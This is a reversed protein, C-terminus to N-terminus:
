LGGDTLSLLGLKDEAHPDVGADYLVLCPDFDDLLAPLLAALRALYEGDGVGDALGVDMDSMSKRLPFNREAHMSMTFVNPNGQFIAATGDGQHVDLDLILVRKAQKTETAYVAAVALDNFICFGSGFTCHAHHTGGGLHCVLGHGLGPRRRADLAMAASTVTGAVELVTRAVLARSWPFGIRRLAQPSMAGSVFDAVHGPAHTLCLAAAVMEAAVMEAGPGGAGAGGGELAAKLAKGPPPAAACAAVAALLLELDHPDQRQVRGGAAAAATHRPALLGPAEAPRRLQTHTAFAPVVSCRAYLDGGQRRRLSAMARTFKSMIFRHEQPWDPASYEPSYVVPLLRDAGGGGGGSTCRVARTPQPPLGVAHRAPPWRVSNECVRGPVIRRM